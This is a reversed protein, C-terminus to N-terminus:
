YKCVYVAQSKVGAERVDGWRRDGESLGAAAEVYTRTKLFIWFATKKDKERRTAALTTLAPDSGSKVAVQSQRRQSEVQAPRPPKLRAAPQSGQAPKPSSNGTPPGSCSCSSSPGALLYRVPFCLSLTLRFNTFLM